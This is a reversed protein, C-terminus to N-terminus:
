KLVITLSSDNYEVSETIGTLLKEVRTKIDDELFLASKVVFLKMENEKETSQISFEECTYKGKFTPEFEINKIPCVTKLKNLVTYLNEIFGIAEFYNKSNIKEDDSIKTIQNAADFLM